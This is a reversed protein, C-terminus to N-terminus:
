PCAKRLKCVSSALMTCAEDNWGFEKVTTWYLMHVCHQVAAHNNPQGPGWAAFDRPSADSWMWFDEQHVDNLGIWHNGKTPDYNEILTILFNSVNSSHISILNADLSQCYIEADVWKLPSSVYKYCDTDFEYWFSPCSGRELKVKYDASPETLLGALALAHLGCLLVSRLFM